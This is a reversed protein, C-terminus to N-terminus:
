FDTTEGCVKEVDNCLKKSHADDSFISLSLFSIM